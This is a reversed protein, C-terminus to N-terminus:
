SRSESCSESRAQRVSLLPSQPDHGNKQVRRTTAYTPFVRSTTTLSLSSFSLSVLASLSRTSVACSTAVVAKALSDNVPLVLRVLASFSHPHPLAKPASQLSWAGLRTAAPLAWILSDCIASATKRGIFYCATNLVALATSTRTHLAIGCVERPKSVGHSPVPM